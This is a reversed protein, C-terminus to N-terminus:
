VKLDRPSMGREGLQQCRGYIPCALFFPPSLILLQFLFMDCITQPASSGSLRTGCAQAVVYASDPAVYSGAKLKPAYVRAVPIVPENVVADGNGALRFLVAIAPPVPPSPNTVLQDNLSPSNVYVGALEAIQNPSPLLKATLVSEAPLM